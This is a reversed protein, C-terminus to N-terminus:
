AKEKDAGEKLKKLYESPITGFEEKFCQRFYFLNNIGVKFAIESISYKGELLFREAHRMKTKRVYENTSLGTLAKMKRYLTSNSMCMKDSLYNVDIKDSSLRAEILDDIKRIFENDLKNLSETIIASKAHIGANANFYTALQRRSHLLNDIRSRLLSASFPKTLYSDAGVSYGEEKDRLSDKATLLIIPIHSTRVDKKLERCMENGDMVPMMIDSVIIDPIEKLASEKGQKGNCATRVEFNDSFSDAIYDCIDPNDEVVLLIPKDTTEADTHLAEAVPLGNGDEQSDAHLAHPYSNDTLLTVCFTSGAGPVSEVNIEGEHLTVLNKVLSLGIGTGSAQHKGGEQYYRDFIHALADPSIGYGTDSVRIETYNVGERSTRGIGITINGKETYKLANSILNDLIIQIIERDFYMPIDEEEVEIRIDIEEKRNLEKYKLGVEHILTVINNRSVCLKRNQTETKRFELIQNILNLLRIASQHIVSIKQADKTSLSNNNQIDELPGLILTLPTRLEHTINTYFRLRENNLEQEQKHSQKELKYLTEANLRKKYAYFISFLISLCLLVYFSKAWWTLWLPPAIRINLSAVQDSWEQNRMRTKVLFQYNGPPLNRFTVNNPDTLTYWSNDLGKLMYAYEVQKVLAYNQINFRINFSNQTYKLKISKQGNVAIVNENDHPKNLPDTVEINTIFAAPSKRKQLVHQPNFYCLGNISGFYLKGDQGYTMCNRSFSGMPLNDHHDYNYFTGSSDILCSIGKNTSMWINGAKDEGIAQIHTNALGSERQYVRYNRDSLNSFCVLGEGSAVWLRKRTDEYLANVTNSPFGSKVNFLQIDNLQADYLGLGEGFFGVWIQGQSDKLVCRVLNNEREYHAKITQKDRDILYIGESTGAWINGERDEFFSRVDTHFLRSADVRHFSGTSPDHYAIGGYFLGFWLGGKSDCLATQVTNGNLSGDDMNYVAIRKDKSFVNIGGGDTGIWLRDAKDMCVGSAIRNTLSNGVSPFSSYKYTNFLSPERQIFNIGGGWSGAWVNDFSDQFLCRVSSNSLGYEDDREKIVTIHPRDSSHFLSQSLDLIAIGGFEMAIWLKNGDLQRIDYVRHSVSKFLDNYPIFSETEPNFLVLGKDTGVWINSNNDKYVCTVENGPLSNADDASHTFNRAKKDKVSLISFGHHVHGIYLMGNGGDAVSWIHNSALGEVTETNYHTFKGTQKDFYDIGKWYTCIWLNGDSAPVIKTIDDTILSEPNTDDHKYTTFTDNVYNYANVGARQTGIWLISDAPDDLLCNLENGTISPKGVTEEKYYSIFRIGDFKNLGEETAFWLFGKKDQAISVVHNNSLGERIGLQKITYPQASLLLPLCMLVSLLAKKM